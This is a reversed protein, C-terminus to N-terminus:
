NNFTRTWCIYIYIYIYIYICIYTYMFIYKYIYMYIYINIYKYIYIYISLSLSPSLSQSKFSEYVELDCRWLYMSRVRQDLVMASSGYNACLRPNPANKDIADRCHIYICIVILLYICSYQYLHKLFYICLQCM